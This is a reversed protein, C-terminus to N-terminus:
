FAFNLICENPFSLKSNILKPYFSGSITKLKSNIIKSLTAHHANAYAHHTLAAPRLGAFKSNNQCTIGFGTVVSGNQAFQSIRYLRAM